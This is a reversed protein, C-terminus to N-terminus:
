QPWVPNLHPVEIFHDIGQVIPIHYCFHPGLSPVYFADRVTDPALRSM